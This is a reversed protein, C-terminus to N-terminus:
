PYAAACREFCVVSIPSAARVVGMVAENSAVPVAVVLEDRANARYRADRRHRRRRPRQRAGFRPRTPAQERDRVRVDDSHIAPQNMRIIERKVKVVLRRFPLAESDGAPEM